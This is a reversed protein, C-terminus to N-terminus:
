MRKELISVEAVPPTRQCASGSVVPAVANKSAALLAASAPPVEAALSAAPLTAPASIGPMQMGASLAAAALLSASTDSPPLCMGNAPQHAVAPATHPLTPPLLHPAVMLAAAQSRVAAALVITSTDYIRLTVCIHELKAGALRTILRATHEPFASNSCAHWQSSGHALCHLQVNCKRIGAEAMQQSPPAATKLNTPQLTVYDGLKHSPTPQSLSLHQLQELLRSQQRCVAMM